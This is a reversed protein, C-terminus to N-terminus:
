LLVMNEEVGLLDLFETSDLDNDNMFVEFCSKIDEPLDKGRLVEDLEEKMESNQFSQYFQEALIFDHNSLNENFVRKIEEADTLLEQILDFQGVQMIFNVLSLKVHEDLEYISIAKLFLDLDDEMILNKIEEELNDIRSMLFISMENSASRLSAKLLGDGRLSKVNIADPSTSLMYELAEFHDGCVMLHLITCCTKKNNNIFINSDLKHLEQLINIRNNEAANIATCFMEGNYNKLIQQYKDFDIYIMHEIISKGEVFYEDLSAGKELAYELIVEQNFDVSMYALLDLDIGKSM